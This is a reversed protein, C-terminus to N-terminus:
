NFRNMAVDLGELLVSAVVEEVRVVAEAIVPTEDPRFHGLVYDISDENEMPRGIGVRVRPFEQTALAGVISDIGNHGGASGRARVRIRGLPLDMDDYIVVLDEPSGSFRDLLYRAGDGSRNMFTRPKALLVPGSLLRGQGVVAKARRDNFQIGWRRAIHDVCRFGVNHRSNTFQRGPNGLGIVLRM